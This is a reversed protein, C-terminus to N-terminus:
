VKYERRDSNKKDESAEEISGFYARGDPLEIHFRDKSAIRYIQDWEIYIRGIDDTSYELKGLDLKKIEGTIENGNRLVVKDTKEAHLLSAAMLISVCIAAIKKQLGSQRPLTHRLREKKSM